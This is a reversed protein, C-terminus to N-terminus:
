VYLDRYLKYRTNQCYFYCCVNMACICICSQNLNNVLGLTQRIIGLMYFYGSVLYQIEFQSSNMGSSFKAGQMAGEAVLTHIPSPTLTNMVDGVNHKSHLITTYFTYLM